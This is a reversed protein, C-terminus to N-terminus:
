TALLLLYPHLALVVLWAWAIAEGRRVRALLAITPQVIFYVIAAAAPLLFRGESEIWVLNLALHSAIALALLVAMAVVGADRRRIQVWWVAVAAYAIVFDVETRRVIEVMATDPVHSMPMWFTRITALVVRVMGLLDQPVTIPPGFGMELAFLSHYVALNRAYWPAAIAAGIGLAVLAGALRAPRRAMWAVWAYAFVIVPAFLTLSSQTLLGAGLLLGLRLHIWPRAGSPSWHAGSLLVLIQHTLLMAILWALPTNSVLSTFYAHVPLLALFAVGLRRAAPGCGLRALAAGLVVLSLLGFLFSVLRCAILARDGAMACVVADILYALPPQYYEFDGREFAGPEASHRTQIPFTHREAIARVYNLHAPEDNLGQLVGRVVPGFPVAFVFLLRIAIAVTLAVAFAVRAARPTM